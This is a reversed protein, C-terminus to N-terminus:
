RAPLHLVFRTGSGGEAVLRGGHRRAIDAAAALGLRAQVREGHEFGVEFLAAREAETRGRGDHGIVIRVGGGDRCGEVWARGGGSLDEVAQSLVAMLLQILEAGRGRVLLREECDLSLTVGEPLSPQMLVVQDRLAETLDLEAEEARDLHAVHALSRAFRELRRSGEEAAAVGATLARGCRRLAADDLAETQLRRGVTRALGLTSQVVGLPNNVEHAFGAALRGLLAMKGAEVLEAQVRALEVYRLRHIEADKTAADLARRAELRRTLETRERKAQEADLELHRRLWGLAAELRGEREELDALAKSAQLAVPLVGLAVSSDLIRALEARAFEVDGLWGRVVALGVRIEIGISDQLKPGLLELAREFGERAAELRGEEADVRALSALAGSQALAAREQTAFALQREFHRRAEDFRGADFELKGLRGSLRSIGSWADLEEFTALGAELERRAAERDGRAALLGGVSSLAWGERFRDKAKRALELAEVAHEMASSLDGVIELLTALTDQASAQGSLDGLERFIEFSRRARKLAVDFDPSDFALLALYRNARAVAPWCRHQEAVGLARELLPRAEGAIDVGLNWIADLIPELDAPGDEELRAVRAELADIESM